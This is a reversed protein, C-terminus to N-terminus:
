AMTAVLLWFRVLRPITEWNAAILGIVGVSLLLAGLVAVLGSMRFAARPTQLSGLIGPVGEPTVWGEQQWRLLDQELRRRYSGETVASEM